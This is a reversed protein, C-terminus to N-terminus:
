KRRLGPIGFVGAVILLIGLVMLTVNLFTINMGMKRCQTDTWLSGDDCIVGANCSEHEPNANCDVEPTNGGTGGPGTGGGGGLVNFTVQTKDNAGGTDLTFKNTIGQMKGDILLEGYNVDM